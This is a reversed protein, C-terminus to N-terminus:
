MKAIKEILDSTRCAYGWENDYWSIVKAFHDHLVTTSLGDFISSYTSKIIDSSVIPEDTYQLIGKLEKKSAFKMKENIDEATAKKELNVFLDILSGTAVPVRVAMGYLKGEVEPIVKGVAKSAGTSTPIINIAASRARRLDKHSGDLLRQDGTYAHVTTMFGRHIGFNDQIVKVVPALCNTTCSANSIIKDNKSLKQDNVGMVIQKINGDGKPPASIIVKDAGAKLHKACDEYTRFLGTSEVVLDVNLAGWNLDDLKKKQTLAIKKGDAIIENNGAKVDKEFVGYVSDYKLLHAQTKADAPSNVAVIDYKSNDLGIRLLCRGIRGFGNIGVKLKEM